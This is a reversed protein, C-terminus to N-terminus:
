KSDPLTEFEKKKNEFWEAMADPSQILESM